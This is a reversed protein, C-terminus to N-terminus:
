LCDHKYPPIQYSFHWPTPTSIRCPTVLYHECLCHSKFFSGFFTLSSTLFSGQPLVNWCHPVIHLPSVQCTWPWHPSWHGSFLLHPRHPWPSCIAHLSRLWLFSKPSSNQISFHCLRIRHFPVQATTNLAWRQPQSVLVLSSAIMILRPSVHLHNPRLAPFSSPWFHKLKQYIKFSLHYSKSILPIYHSLLHSKLSLMLTLVLPSHLALEICQM